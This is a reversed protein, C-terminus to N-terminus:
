RGARTRARTSQSVRGPASVASPAFPRSANALVATSFPRGQTASSSRGFSRPGWASAVTTLATRARISAPVATPTAAAWRPMATRGSEVWVREVIRQGVSTTTPVSSTSVGGASDRRM